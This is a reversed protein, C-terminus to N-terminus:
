NDRRRGFLLVLRILQMVSVMLAAVYTLAAASLVKRVGQAEERALIGDTQLIAMARRSADFEVPLTVLQFIVMASFALIGFEVLSPMGLVLGLLILPMSLKSGFNTIPIIANRVTLPFYQVNHQIAHGTEHAAVGVASVSSSDYVGQSLRVTRDRPDYHDTLQGAVREVGVDYLGNDELIRKAIQAGTLACGCRVKGFRAFTSSVRSQAWMAVLLAPVVLIFYYSDFYM